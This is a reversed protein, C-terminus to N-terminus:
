LLIGRSLLANYGNEADLTSNILGVVADKEERIGNQYIIVSKPRFAHITGTGGIVKYPIMYKDYKSLDVDSFLNEEAIIVPLNTVPERLENGTDLFANFKVNVGNLSIEITYTFIKIRNRDLIFSFIREGIIYIFIVVIFFKDTYYIISKSNESNNEINLQLFLYLGGLLMSYLIFVMFSKMIFKFSKGNFVIFIMILAVFIKFAIFTFIRLSPIVIVLAYLSGILSALLLRKINIKIKLSKMTLELLFFDIIFNGILYKDIYVVM